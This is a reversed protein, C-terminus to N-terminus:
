RPERDADGGARSPRSAPLRAAVDAWHPGGLDSGPALGWRAFAGATAELVGAAGRRPRTARRPPLTVTRTVIGRRDVWAVDIAFRMGFTHVSTVGGLWLAGDIGGRGLLGRTRAWPTAAVELPAVRRGDVVLAPESGTGPAAPHAAPRRVPGEPDAAPLDAPGASGADPDLDV